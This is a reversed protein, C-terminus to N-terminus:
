VPAKSEREGFAAFSVCLRERTKDRAGLVNNQKKAIESGIFHSKWSTGVTPITDLFFGATRRERRTHCYVVFCRFLGVSLWIKRRSMQFKWVVELHSEEGNERWAFYPNWSSYM